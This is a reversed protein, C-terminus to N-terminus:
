CQASFLLNRGYSCQRSIIQMWVFNGNHSMQINQTIDHAKNSISINKNNHCWVSNYHLICHKYKHIIIFLFSAIPVNHSRSHRSTMPTTPWWNTMNTITALRHTSPRYNRNFVLLFGIGSKNFVLLFGTGSIWNYRKWGGLKAWLRPNPCWKQFRRIDGLHTSILLQFKVQLWINGLERAGYLFKAAQQHLQPNARGIKITLSACKVTYSINSCLCCASARGPSLLM